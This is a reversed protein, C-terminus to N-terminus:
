TPLPSNWFAPLKLLVKFGRLLQCSDKPAHRVLNSHTLTMLNQGVRAMKLRGVGRHETRLSAVHAIIDAVPGVRDTAVASLRRFFPEESCNEHDGIMAALTEPYGKLMRIGAALDRPDLGVMARRSQGAVPAALAWGFQVAVDFAEATTLAAISSDVDRLIDRVSRGSPLALAEAKSLIFRLAKPGEQDGSKFASLQM